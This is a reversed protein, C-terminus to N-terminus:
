ACPRAREAVVGLHDEGPPADVVAHARVDRALGHLLHDVGPAVDLARADVHQAEGELLVHGSMRLEFTISMTRSSCRTRRRPRRARGPPRARVLRMCSYPTRRHAQSRAAPPRRAHDEGHRVLAEELMGGAAICSSSRAGPSGPRPSTPGRRRATGARLAARTAATLALRASRRAVGGAACAARRRTRRSARQLRAPDDLRKALRRRARVEGLDRQDARRRRRAPARGAPQPPEVAPEVAPRKPALALGVCRRRGAGLETGCPLSTRSRAGAGCAGPRRRRAPRRRRCAGRRGRASRRRASRSRGSRLSRLRPPPPLDRSAVGSVPEPRPTRRRGPLGVRM